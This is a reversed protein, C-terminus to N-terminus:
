HIEGLGLDTHAGVPHDEIAERDLECTAQDPSLLCLPHPPLRFLPPLSSTSSM